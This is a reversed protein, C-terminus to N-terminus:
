TVVDLLIQKIGKIISVIEARAGPVYSTAQDFPMNNSDMYIFMWRSNKPKVLACVVAHSEREHPASVICECTIVGSKRTVIEKIKNKLVAYAGYSSIEERKDNVFYDRGKKRRIRRVDYPAGLTNEFLEFSLDHCGKCDYLSQMDVECLQAWHRVCAASPFKGAEIIKKLAQANAAAHYACTPGGQINAVFHYMPLEPFLQQIAAPFQICTGVNAYAVLTDARLGFFRNKNRVSTRDVGNGDGAISSCEDDSFCGEDGHLENHHTLVQPTLAVSMFITEIERPLSKQVATDFEQPSHLVKDFLHAYLPTMQAVLMERVEDTPGSLRRHSRAYMGAYVSRTVAATAHVFRKFRLKSDHSCKNDADIRQCEQREQTTNISDFIDPGCLALQQASTQMFAMTRLLPESKDACQKLLSQQPFELLSPGAVLNSMFVFIVLLRCLYKM